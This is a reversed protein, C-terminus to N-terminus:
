DIREVDSLNPAKKPGSIRPLETSSPSKASLVSKYTKLMALRNFLKAIRADLREEIALDALLRAPTALDGMEILKYYEGLEKRAQAEAAETAAKVQAPDPPTWDANVGLPFLDYPPDTPPIMSRIESYRKRVTEAARFTKLNNKRWMTRAMDAVTDEELPGNPCFESILDQHLEEFAAPDEGPLLGLTSYGGHKLAPYIKKTKVGRVCELHSDIRKNKSEPM